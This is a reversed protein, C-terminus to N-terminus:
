GPSIEEELKIYHTRVSSHSISDGDNKLELAINSYSKGQRRLDHIRDFNKEVIAQAKSIPRPARAKKRIERERDIEAAEKKSMRHSLAAKSQAMRYKRIAMLFTAYYFEGKFARDYKNSLKHSIDTQLRHIEIREEPKLDMYYNLLRGYDADTLSTLSRTYETSKMNKVM